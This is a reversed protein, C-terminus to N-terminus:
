RQRAIASVLRVVDNQDIPRVTVGKGFHLVMKEIWVQPRASDQNDIVYGNRGYPAEGVENGLVLHEFDQSNNTPRHQEAARFRLCEIRKPIAPPALTVVPPADGRVPFDEQQRAAM